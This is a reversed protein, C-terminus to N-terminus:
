LGQSPDGGWSHSSLLLQTCGLIFDAQSKLTCSVGLVLSTQKTYNKEGASHM